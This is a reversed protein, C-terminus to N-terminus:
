LRDHVIQGLFQLVLNPNLEVGQGCLRMRLLGLCLCLLLHGAAQGVRRAKEIEPSM